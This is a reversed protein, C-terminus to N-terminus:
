CPHPMASDGTMGVLTARGVLAEAQRVLARLRTLDDV